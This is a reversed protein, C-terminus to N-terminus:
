SIKSFGLGTLAEMEWWKAFVQSRRGSSRAGVRWFTPCLHEVCAEIYALRSMRFWVVFVLMRGVSAVAACVGECAQQKSM